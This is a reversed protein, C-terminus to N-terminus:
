HDLYLAPMAEDVTKSSLSTARGPIAKYCPWRWGGSNALDNKRQAHFARTRRCDGYSFCKRYLTTCRQLQDGPGLAASPALVPAPIALLHLVLRSRHSILQHVPETRFRCWVM